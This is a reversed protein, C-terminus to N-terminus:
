EGIIFKELKESLRINMQELAQIQELLSDVKPGVANLTEQKGFKVGENFANLEFERGFRIAVMCKKEDFDRPFKALEKEKSDRVIWQDEDEGRVWTAYALSLPLAEM